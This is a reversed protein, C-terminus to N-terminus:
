LIASKIGRRALEAEVQRMVAVFAPLLTDQIYEDDRTVRVIDGEDLERDPDRWYNVFDNWKRGTVFLQTQLQPYNRRFAGPRTWEKFTRLRHRYKYEALGDDGVLADPSCGIWSYRDHVIFGTHKTDVDKEFKYWGDIWEEYFVGDRFWPPREEDEHDPIGELDDALKDVLAARGKTERGMLCIGASSASIVGRKAAHWEPTRQTECVIKM